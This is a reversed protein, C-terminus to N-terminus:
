DLPEILEKAQTVFCFFFVCESSLFIGKFVDFNYKNKYKYCLMCSNRYM